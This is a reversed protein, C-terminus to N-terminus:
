PKSDARAGDAAGQPKWSTPAHPSSMMQTLSLGSRQNTALPAGNPCVTEASLTAPDPLPTGAYDIPTAETLHGSEDFYQQLIAGSQATIAANSLDAGALNVGDFTAGQLCAFTLSARVSGDRTASLDAGGLSCQVMFAGDFRAGRLDAGSMDVGALYAGGFNTEELNAAHGFVNAGVITANAFSVGYLSCGSFDCNAIYASSFIPAAERDLGGISAGTFDCADVVARAFVARVLIAGGFSAKRMRAGVFSAGEVSAGDFVAGDLLHGDFVFQGLRAGRANLKTLDQPVGVVTARSLDLCSWDMGISSFPLTAGALLTPQKPDTPHQLGSFDVQTLDLGSFDTGSLNAGGIRCGTVSSGSLLAGTLDAGHFDVGDLVSGRLDAKVFRAGSLSTNQALNVGHLAAGSFDVNRLDHGRLDCGELNAGRLNAGALKVTALDTRGAFNARSLNAGTFDCRAISKAKRLDVDTLTKGAFSMGSLDETILLGLGSQNVDLIDLFVPRDTAVVTFALANKVDDGFGGALWQNRSGLAPNSDSVLNLFGRCAGPDPSSSGDDVRGESLSYLAVRGDGTPVLRFKEESGITCEWNMTNFEALTIIGHPASFYQRSSFFPGGNTCGTDFGPSGSFAVTGDGLDWLGFAQPSATPPAGLVLVYYAAAVGISQSGDPTVNLRWHNILRM